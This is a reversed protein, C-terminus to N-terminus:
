KAVRKVAPDQEERTSRDTGRIRQEQLWMGGYTMPRLSVIWDKGDTHGAFHVAQAKGASRAEVIGAYSGAECEGSECARWLTARPKGADFRIAIRKVWAAGYRPGAEVVWTGAYDQLPVEPDRAERRYAELAGSSIPPLLRSSFGIRDLVGTAHLGTALLACGVLGAFRGLGALEVKLLAAAIKVVFYLDFAVVAIRMLRPGWAGGVSKLWDLGALFVWYNLALAMCLLVFGGVWDTVYMPRPADDRTQPSM